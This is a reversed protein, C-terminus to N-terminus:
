DDEEVPKFFMVTGEDHLVLADGDKTFELEGNPGVIVVTKGEDTWTIEMTTGSYTVTGVGDEGLDLSISMGVNGPTIRVGNATIYELRYSGGAAKSCGALSLFLAACLLLAFCRRM